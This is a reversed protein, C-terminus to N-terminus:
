QSYGRTLNLNAAIVREMFEHETPSTKGSFKAADEQCLV